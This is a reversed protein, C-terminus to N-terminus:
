SFSFSISIKKPPRCMTKCIPNMYGHFIRNTSATMEALLLLHNPVTLVNLATTHVLVCFSWVLYKTLKHHGKYVKSHTNYELKM